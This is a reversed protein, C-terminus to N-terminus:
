LSGLGMDGVVLVQAEGAALDLMTGLVSALGGSTSATEVAEGAADPADTTQDLDLHAVEAPACMNLTDCAVAQVRSPAALYSRDSELARTILREAKVEARLNWADVAGEAASAALSVRVLGALALVSMCLVVLRFTHSASAQSQARTRRSGGAVLRLSPRVHQRAPVPATKRAAAGM